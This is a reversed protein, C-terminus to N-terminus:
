AAGGPPAPVAVRWARGWFPFACIYRGRGAGALGVWARGAAARCPYASRRKNPSLLCSVNM